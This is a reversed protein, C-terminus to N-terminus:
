AHDAAGAQKLVGHHITGILVQHQVGTRIILEPNRPATAEVSQFVGILAFAAVTQDVGHGASRSFRTATPSDKARDKFEESENTCRRARLLAARTM